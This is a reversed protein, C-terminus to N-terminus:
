SPELAMKFDFPQFDENEEDEDLLFPPLFRFRLSHSLASFPIGV